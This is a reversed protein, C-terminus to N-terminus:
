GGNGAQKAAAKKAEANRKRTKAAKDATQAKYALTKEFPALLSPDRKRRANSSVADVILGVATEREHVKKAETEDLVEALKDVIARVARIKAIDDTTEVFVKYADAPVAAAASPVASNLENVVDDIGEKETLLNQKGGPPLDILKPGLVTVDITLPGTYPHGQVEPM